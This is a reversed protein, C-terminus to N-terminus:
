KDYYEKLRIKTSSNSCISRRNLIINNIATKDITTDTNLDFFCNNVLRNSVMRDFVIIDCLKQIERHRHWKRIHMLNDIGM